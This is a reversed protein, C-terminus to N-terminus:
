VTKNPVFYVLIATAILTLAEELSMQPTLGFVGLATIVATVVLPVLAKAYPM